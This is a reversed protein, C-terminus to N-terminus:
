AEPYGSALALAVINGPRFLSLFLDVSALRDVMGLDPRMLVQAGYAGIDGVAWAYRYYALALPDVTVPGYGQLFSEEEEPGVLETSIGGGMVFMLDRERPALMAEDWDVFWVQGATDVLVNNTHIDAHCLVLAPDRSALHRGLTEAHAVLTNITERQEQWFGAMTQEAVGGVAGRALHAEVARVQGAGLPVFTERQLCQALDPSLTTTHIQRLMDGYAIWQAPTMHQEMGTAGTVFPYLILAYGAAETWLTQRTTLLPAVVQSVGRDHLYRPVLLGPENIVGRRAKLFFSSGDPTQVRYVWALADHGLPLFTLRAVTLGYAARLAAGIAEASLDAPPEQM